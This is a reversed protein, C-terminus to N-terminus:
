GEQKKLATEAEERTRFLIKGIEEASYEGYHGIKIRVRGDLVFVSSVVLSFVGQADIGRLSCCSWLEDGKKCPLVVLRGDKEAEALDDMRKIDVGFIEAKGREVEELVEKMLKAMEQMEPFALLAVQEPTLGTDEYAALRELADELRLDLPKLVIRDGTRMTLREM